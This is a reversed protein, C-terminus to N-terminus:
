YEGARADADAARGAAGRAAVHAEAARAAAGAELVRLGANARAAPLLRERAFAASCHNGSIRLERLHTNAPLADCLPGLGADGLRCHSATLSALAPADAAILRALAAGLAAADAPGRASCDLKRLSPHGELAALVVTAAAENHAFFTRLNLGTLHRSAALAAAFAAVDAPPAGPPLESRSVTVRSCGAAVLRALARLTSAAAAPAFACHALHVGRLRAAAAADVLADLSAASLAAPCIYIQAVHGSATALDEALALMAAEPAGGAPVHLCRLTLPAFPADRRLVRRAGDVCGAAVTRASLQRLGPGSARLLGEIADARWADALEAFLSSQRVGVLVTGLSGNSGSAGVAAAVGEATIGSCGRVDLRRLGGAAAAAVAALLADTATRNPVGGLGRTLSVDRYLEPASALARWRACVARCLLRTHVPLLSLILGALAPPLSQLAPADAAEEADAADAGPSGADTPALAAPM